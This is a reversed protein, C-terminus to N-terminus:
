RSRGALRFAWVSLVAPGAVGCWSVWIPIAWPGLDLSWGNVVRIAHLIAVLGFVIASVVLYSRNNM